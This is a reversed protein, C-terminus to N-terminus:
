RRYIRELAGQLAVAADFPFHKGPLGPLITYYEPVQNNTLCGPASALDFIFKPVKKELKLWKSPITNVLYTQDFDLTNELAKAKFGRAIAEGIQEESRALITVEGGLSHITEAVIKGVRGYGAVQFAKGSVVRGTAEYYENIFAEATLQANEWIFLEEKLYSYANFGAKRFAELVPLSVIGFYLTMEKKLMEVPIMKTMELMPFVIHNPKFDILVEAIEKSYTQTRIVRCSHGKKEMLESCIKFREDTGIFLWRQKNM